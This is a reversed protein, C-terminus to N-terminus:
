EGQFDELTEIEEEDRYIIEQIGEYIAAYNITGKRSTVQIKM